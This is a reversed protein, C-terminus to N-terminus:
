QPSAQRSIFAQLDEPRVRVSRGLRVSPIEGRKTLTYAMSESIQLREAVEQCTMLGPKGNGPEPDMVTEASVPRAQEHAGILALTLMAAKSALEHWLDIILKEDAPTM